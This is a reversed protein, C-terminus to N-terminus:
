TSIASIIDMSTKQWTFEGISDVVKSANKYNEKESHLHKMYISTREVSDQNMTMWRGQENFFQGDWALEYEDSHPIMFSNDENMFERHATCDTLICMKGCAMMEMADMNWGEARSPFVGFDAMRMINAVDESTAVRRIIKVRPDTMYLSEWELRKQERIFPNDPMMWLEVSEDGNPFASSFADILVDHGKRLEWKGVNLFVTKGDEKRDGPYFINRNVGMHVIHINKPHILPCNAIIVEKAWKSAVIIKDLYTLHHVEEETFDELEFFPFGVKLGCGVHEAMCNQHFIKLSDGMYSFRARNDLARKVYEAYEKDCTVSGIPFLAVEHGAVMLEKLINVSVIGYGLSNIPATMNIYM